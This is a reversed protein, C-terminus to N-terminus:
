CRILRWHNLMLDDLLALAFVQIFLIVWFTITLAATTWNAKSFMAFPSFFAVIISLAFAKPFAPEPEFESPWLKPGPPYIMNYGFAAGISFLLTPLFFMCVGILLFIQYKKKKLRVIKDLLPEM